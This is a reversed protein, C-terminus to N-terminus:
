GSISNVQASCRHCANTLTVISVFATICTFLPGSLIFAFIRNVDFGIDYGLLISLLSKFNLRSHFERLMFLYNPQNVFVYVWYAGQAIEIYNRVFIAGLSWGFIQNIHMTSEWIKFHILKFQVLEDYGNTRNLYMGNDFPHFHPRKSDVVRSDLWQKAIELHYQLLEVHVIIHMQAMGLLFYFTLVVHNFPGNTHNTYIFKRLMLTVVYPSFVIFIMRSIRQSLKGFEIPCKMQDKMYRQICDYARRLTKIKNDYVFAQAIVSIQLLLDSSVNTYAILTKPIRQLSTFDYRVVLSFQYISILFLLYIIGFLHSILRAKWTLLVTNSRTRGCAYQVSFHVFGFFNFLIQFRQLLADFNM